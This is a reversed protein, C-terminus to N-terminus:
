IATINGAEKRVSRQTSPYGFDTRHQHNCRPTCGGGGFPWVWIGPSCAYKKRLFIEDRDMTGDQAISRRAISVLRYIGFSILALVFFLVIIIIAITDNEKVM